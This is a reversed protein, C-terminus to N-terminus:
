HNCLDELILNIHKENAEKAAKADGKTLADLIKRHYEQSVNVKRVTVWSSRRFSASVEMLETTLNMLYQNPCLNYIYAHFKEHIASYAQYDDHSIAQDMNLIYENLKELNKEQIFPTALEVVLGELVLRVQYMDRIEDLDINAVEAGCYPIVKVLGADVLKGIAERIPTRSVGYKEALEVERLREHPALKGSLIDQRIDETVKDAVTAKAM